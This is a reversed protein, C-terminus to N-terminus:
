ALLDGDESAERMQRMHELAKGAGRLAKNDTLSGTNSTIGLRVFAKIIKSDLRDIVTFVPNAYMRGNDDCLAPEQGSYLRHWRESQHLWQAVKTLLVADGPTWDFTPRARALLDFYFVEGDNLGYAPQLGAKLAQTLALDYAESGAKPRPPTADTM